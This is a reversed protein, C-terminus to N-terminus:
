DIKLPCYHDLAKMKNVFDNIVKQNNGGNSQWSKLFAGVEKAFSGTSHAELAKKGTSSSFAAAIVRMGNGSLWDEDHHMSFSDDIPSTILDSQHQGMNLSFEIVNNADEFESANAQIM